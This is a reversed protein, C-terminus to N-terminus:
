KFSNPISDIISFIFSLLLLNSSISLLLRFVYYKFPTLYSFYFLYYFIIYIYSYFLYTWEAYISLSIDTIFTHNYLIIFSYLIFFLLYSLLLIFSYLLAFLLYLAIILSYFCLMYLSWDFLTYVIVINNINIFSLFIFSEIFLM